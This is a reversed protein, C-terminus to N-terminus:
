PKGIEAKESKRNEATLRDVQNRLALLEGRVSKPTSCIRCLYQYHGASFPHGCTLCINTGYSSRHADEPFDRDPRLPDPASPASSTPLHHSASSEPSAAAPNM